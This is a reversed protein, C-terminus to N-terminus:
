ACRTAAAFCSLAGARGGAVAAWDGWGSSRVAPSPVSAGCTSTAPSRRRSGTCVWRFGIATAVLQGLAFALLGVAGLALAALGDPTRAITRGRGGRRRAPGPRGFAVQLALWAVLLHVVGYGVLGIRGLVDVVCSPADSPGERVARRLRLMSGPM